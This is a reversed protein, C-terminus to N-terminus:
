KRISNVTMQEIETRSFVQGSQIDAESKLARIELKAKLVEESRLKNYFENIVTDNALHLHTKIFDRKDTLKM